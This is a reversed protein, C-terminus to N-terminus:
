MILNELTANLQDAVKFIGTKELMEKILTTYENNEAVPYLVIAQM